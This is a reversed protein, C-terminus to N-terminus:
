RRRGATTFSPERPVQSLAPTRAPPLKGMEALQNLAADAAFRDPWDLAALLHDLGGPIEGLSEAANQRVWWEKDMLLLSVPEAVSADALAALARVARARVEWSADGLADLLPGRSSDTAVKALASCAAVRWMANPTGLLEVLVPEAAPDGILGLVRAAQSVAESTAGSDQIEIEIWQIVAPLAVPGFALLSDALRGAEWPRVRRSLDLIMPIAELDRIRALGHAAHTRVHGNHDDLLSRLFPAASRDALEVLTSVARLRYSPSFLSRIRPILADVIGLENVLRDVFRGDEGEVLRRYDILIDHFVPDSRWRRPAPAPIYRREIMEAVAAIYRATRVGRSNLIIRHALKVSLLSIAAIVTSAALAVTVWPLTGSM